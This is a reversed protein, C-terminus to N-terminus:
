PVIFYIKGNSGAIPLPQAHISPESYHQENDSAETPNTLHELSNHELSSLM